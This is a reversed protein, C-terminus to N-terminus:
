KSKIEQGKGFTNRVRVSKKFYRSWIIAWAAPFLAALALPLIFEEVRGLDGMIVGTIIRLPLLVAVVWLEIINWKPAQNSKLLILV